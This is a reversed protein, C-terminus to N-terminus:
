GKDGGDKEKRKEEKKKKCIKFHFSFIERLECCRQIIYKHPSRPTEM